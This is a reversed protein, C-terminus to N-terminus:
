VWVWVWVSGVMREKRGNELQVPPEEVDNDGCYGLEIGFMTERCIIPNAHRKTDPM